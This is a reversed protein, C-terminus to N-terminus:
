WISIRGCAACPQPCTPSSGAGCRIRGQPEYGRFWDPNRHHGHWVAAIRKHTHTSCGTHAASQATSATKEAPTTAAEIWDFSSQRNQEPPLAAFEPGNCSLDFAGTREGSLKFRKQPSSSQLLRRSSKQRSKPYSGNWSMRSKRSPSSAPSRRCPSYQSKTQMRPDQCWRELQDPYTGRERCYASFETVYQKAPWLICRLQKWCWRSSTRQVGQRQPPSMRRTADAKVAESYRRM